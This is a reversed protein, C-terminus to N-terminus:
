LIMISLRTALPLVERRLISDSLAASGGRSQRFRHGCFLVFLERANKLRFVGLPQVGVVM